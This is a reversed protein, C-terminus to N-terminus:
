NGGPCPEEPKNPLAGQPITPRQRESLWTNNDHFWVVGWCKCAELRVRHPDDVALGALRGNQAPDSEHVFFEGCLRITYSQLHAMFFEMVKYIADREASETAATYHKMLDELVNQKAKIERYYWYADKLADSAGRGPRFLNAHAHQYLHTAEETLVGKKKWKDAPDDSWLGHKMNVTITGGGASAYADPSTTHRAAYDEGSAM